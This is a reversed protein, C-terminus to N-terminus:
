AAAGRELEREVWARGLAGPDTGEPLKLWRAGAVGLVRLELWLAMSARWADGDLLVVLPRVASRLIELHHSGKQGLLAVGDPWLAWADFVGEVVFAPRETEDWLVRENYLYRGRPMDRPYLYRQGERERPLWTRGVWGIVVGSRARVPAVVRCGAWGTLVAGVELEAWRERPVRRELYTRAPEFSLASAAPEEYLPEWEDPLQVEVDTPESGAADELAREARSSAYGSLRGRAACRWCQWWGGDASVALSASRDRVGAREDCFPCDVRYYGAKSRHANAVLERVQDNDERWDM